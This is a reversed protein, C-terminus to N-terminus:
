FLNVIFEVLIIIPAAIMVMILPVLFFRLLSLVCGAAVGVGMKERLVVIINNTILFAVIGGFVFSGIVVVGM